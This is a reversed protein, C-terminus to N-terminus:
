SGLEELERVLSLYQRRLAQFRESNPNGPNSRHGYIAEHVRKEWAKMREVFPDSV